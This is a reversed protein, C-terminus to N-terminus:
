LVAKSIKIVKKAVNEPTTGLVRIMPEKGIEGTDYIIDPFTNSHRIAEAVGWSLTSGEKEKIAPPENKRDFKAVTFGLELCKRVTFEEYRINMASRMDSRFRTATIVVNAMHRSAGFQPDKVTVFEKGLKIFRGPFAAVDDRTVPMPLSYALNSQVEPFVHSVPGSEKLIQVAAKLSEIVRYREWERAVVRYPNTPGRGKGLPESFHIALDIFKKAETVAPVVHKGQAVFTAIAASYTCGTGHTNKTEHRSTEFHYMDAGDFLVDVLIDNKLHGGKVLVYRCGLEWISQAAKEMDDVSEVGTGTIVEAEPLNPTVILALPILENILTKEAEPRLLRHGSKSVMVPDVVLNPVKYEQIKGAVTKVTEPTDLMGTKVADAGIDSLVADLQKAVFGAPVPHIAEVGQTNQATLATLVSMGYSGLLTITKIDAQIGAGGGSDSGAVTLVKKM